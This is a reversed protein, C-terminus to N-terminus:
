LLKALRGAAGVTYGKSEIKGPHQKEYVEKKVCRYSNKVRQQTLRFTEVTQKRLM